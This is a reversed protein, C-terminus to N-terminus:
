KGDNYQEGYYIAQDKKVAEYGKHIDQKSLEIFASTDYDRLPDCKDAVYLLKAYVSQSNGLVHHAIAELLQKNQLHLYHECVYAGMFGHWISEKQKAVEPALEQLIKLSDEKNIIKFEKNIDHYYGMLYALTVDLQNCTALEKCVTAVSVSHQYRYESMAHKLIDEYLIHKSFYNVVAPDVHCLKGNRIESSSIPIDEMQLYTLTYPSESKKGDRAFACLNVMKQLQDIDKWAHLQEVQDNGLIFYFTDKPYMTKLKRVTDVTYNKSTSGKEIDCIKYADFKHFALELMKRRDDYSTLKRDKLPTQESLVFWVEDLHLQQLAHKAMAMHGDHVPDFSGGLLGIKRM